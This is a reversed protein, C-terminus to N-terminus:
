GARHIRSEREVRAENLDDISVVAEITAIYEEPLGAHKAGVLVHRKYWHYPSLGERKSTAVYTMALIVGGETDVEVSRPEYGSGAGEARDLASREIDAVAFVVGYVKDGDEGTRECDCKGSGDKSIKDFALRYGPLLGSSLVRASPTRKTLREVSMNSGYAFYAFENHRLM